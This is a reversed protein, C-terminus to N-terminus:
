NAPLTETPLNTSAVSEIIWGQETKRYIVMWAFETRERVLIGNEDPYNLTVDKHVISYALSGDDSFSIVPKSIDEWKEFEIADFYNTFREINEERSPRSIRGRNVSIFRESLLDAFAEPQEELHVRQQVVHLALIEARAKEIDFSAKRSCATCLIIISVLIYRM